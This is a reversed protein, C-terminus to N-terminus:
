TQLNRDPEPLAVPEAHRRANYENCKRLEGMDENRVAVLYEYAEAQSEPTARSRLWADDWCRQCATM